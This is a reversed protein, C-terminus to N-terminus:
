IRSLLIASSCLTKRHYWWQKQPDISILLQLVQENNKSLFDSADTESPARLNEFSKSETWWSSSFSSLTFTMIQQTKM